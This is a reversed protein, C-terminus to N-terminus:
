FVCTFTTSLYFQDIYSYGTVYFLGQVLILMESLLVPVFYRCCNYIARGRYKCRCLLRVIERLSFQLCNCVTAFLDSILCHFHTMQRRRYLTDILKNEFLGELTLVTRFYAMCHYLKRGRFKCMAAPLLKTTNGMRSVFQKCSQARFVHVKFVYKRESVSLGLNNSIHM